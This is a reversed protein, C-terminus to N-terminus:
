CDIEKEIAKVIRWIYNNNLEHQYMWRNSCSCNQRTRNLFKAIDLYEMTTNHKLLWILTKRPQTTVKTSDKSFLQEATVDFHFCVLHLIKYPLTISQKKM